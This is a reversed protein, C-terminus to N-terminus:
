NGGHKLRLHSHSQKKRGLDREGSSPNWGFDIDLWSSGIFFSQGGLCNAMVLLYILDPSFFTFGFLRIDQFLSVRM